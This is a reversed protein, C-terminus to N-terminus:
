QIPTEAKKNYNKKMVDIGEDEETMCGTTNLKQNVQYFSTSNDFVSQTRTTKKNYREIHIRKFQDSNNNNDLNQGDKHNPIENQFSNRPRGFSRVGSTSTSAQSGSNMFCTERFGSETHMSKASREKKLLASTLLM